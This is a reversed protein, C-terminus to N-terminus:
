FCNERKKMQKLFCQAELAKSKENDKQREADKQTKRSENKPEKENEKGYPGYM